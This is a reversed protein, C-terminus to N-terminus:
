HRTPTKSKSAAHPGISGGATLVMMSRTSRVTLMSPLTCTQMRLLTGLQLPPPSPTLSHTLQTVSVPPPPSIPSSHPPPHTTHCLSPTPLIPSSHPPPPSIPSFYHTLYFAPYFLIFISSCFNGHLMLYMYARICHIYVCTCACISSCQLPTLYMYLLLPTLPVHVPPTPHPSCTCSSHPSPFMYLLLPTLPVHVPPTPHPSCTCSSHPSPFMYLLLPTLPVHVPPTPHPSCTCSSHPSPFM